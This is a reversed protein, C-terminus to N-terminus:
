EPSIAEIAVRGEVAVARYHGPVLRALPALLMREVARQLPRAGYEKSYGADAVEQVVDDSVELALGSLSARAILDAIQHRAIALVTERNLPQFVLIDDLRNLLEPAMREKVARQVANEESRADGHDGFGAKTTTFARAGINSTMVIVTNRFHATQGQSDTLRGIDFVQLFTNWVQPHAKEIEDLVLVVDENNRIRTTLWNAPETHGVYGPPSGVLKSVTHSEAYESMDLRLVADEDGYVENALAHALATKGVGTPGVFLFVGDPRGPRADLEARTVVLRDVVRKLVHDQGLIVKALNRSAAEPDFQHRRIARLGLDSVTVARAEQSALAAARDLRLIALSPHTVQDAERPPACAARIVEDSIVSGHHEALAAGHQQAIAIVDDRPLDPLEVIELEELLERDVTRLRDVYGRSLLLVLARDPDVVSTRLVSLMGFDATLSSGLGGLVEVDDIGVVAAGAIDDLARKLTEARRGAVVAEASVRLVPTGALADGEPLRNIAAALAGLLSTRGAGEPAVVLPTVRHRARLLALIRRVAADRGRISEDPEVLSTVATRSGAVAERSSGKDAGGAGQAVPVPEDGTAVALPAAGPDKVWTSLREALERLSDEGECGRLIEWTEETVQPEDFSLPLGRLREEIVKTSAEGLAAAIESHDKLLAVALHGATIDKHGRRKAESKATDLLRVLTPPLSPSTM